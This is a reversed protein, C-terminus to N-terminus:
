TMLLQVKFESNTHWENYTWEPSNIIYQSTPELGTFGRTYGMTMFEDSFYNVKLGAWFLIFAIQIIIIATYILYEKKQQDM